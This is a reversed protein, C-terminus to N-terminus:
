EVAWEVHDPLDLPGSERRSEALVVSTRGSPLTLLSGPPVAPATARAYVTASSVVQAGTRDRVMRTTEDVFCPLGTVPPGHVDGMGGSGILPVVTVTHVLFEDLEDAASM